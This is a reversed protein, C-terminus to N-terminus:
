EYSKGVIGLGTGIMAERILLKVASMANHQVFTLHPRRSPSSFSFPHTQSLRSGKPAKAKIACLLM